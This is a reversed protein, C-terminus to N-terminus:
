ELSILQDLHYRHSPTGPEIGDLKPLRIQGSPSMALRNMFATEVRTIQHQQKFVQGLDPALATYQMQRRGSGLWLDGTNSFLIFDCCSAASVIWPLVSPRHDLITNHTETKILMDVVADGEDKVWPKRGSGSKDPGGNFM